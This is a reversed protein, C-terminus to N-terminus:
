SSESAARSAASSSLELLMVRLLEVSRIHAALLPYSERNGLYWRTGRETCLYTYTRLVGAQEKLRRMGRGTAYNSAVGSVHTAALEIDAMLILEQSEDGSSSRCIEAIEKGALQYTRTVDDLMSRVLAMQWTVDTPPRM